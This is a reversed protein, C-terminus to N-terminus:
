NITKGKEHKKRRRILLALATLLGYVFIMGGAIYQLMLTFFEKPMLMLLKDKSPDLIWLDNTFLIEHFKVFLKDFGQTSLILGLCIYLAAGLTMSYGILRLHGERRYLYSAFLALAIFSGFYIYKGATFLNRVDAMHLKEKQNYFSAPQLDKTKSSLYRAIGSAIPRGDEPNVGATQYSGAKIFGSHYIDTSLGLNVTVAILVSLPVLLALVAAM